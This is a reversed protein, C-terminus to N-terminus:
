VSAEAVPELEHTLEKTQPKSKGDLALLLAPLLLFDIVLAAAIAVATLLGLHENIRFGSLALVGFGAILIASTVWLATGVTRFAYRVADPATAGNARRARQYKSLFHVTADVILGLSTATIVSAALGVEGVFVSWLGFAIAAPLLNPVLSILGLRLDRLAIILAGSILLFAALTGTLMGEINRTFIYAFMVAPGTASIGAAPAHRESLWANAADDIARLESTTINETTAVVRVASKDVNIQNNLDLGYPLSMEFLLLYQAALERNGPLRDHAPDDGHMNRNLRRQLDSLTQVHEVHPKARLWAAFDELMALFGPDNVGGAEAAPVSWELQYVGSLHEAAFEVDQRFTSDHDFYAHFQDNVELRPILATLGAVVVIMGALVLRRRSIVVDALRDMATGRRAVAPRVRLPLVTMVAPLFLISYLWAAAVGAAITNGFDHFPPSDSFNLSLFGIITTLSTLFVPQFNIRLSEVIAAQRSAGRRMEQFMTVLLHISDAIAITLIITPANATVPTLEVGAWGALGMATATSLGIVMLTVLTGALSRLLVATVALLVLYMLPVVSRLDAEAAETFAYGLPASGVIAVHVDPNADRFAAALARSADIVAPIEAAEVRPLNLTVNVAMTAGDPSVLRNVLLPETLAVGRIGAIAAKDLPMDAPILDRVTLDDGDAYSHQFNNLSDVRTAFPMQWGAETLERMATLFDPTFSEGAPPRLVFMVNDDRTYTNQLQVFAQLQPNEPGFYVKYDTSFTLHRAGAAAALALILSVAIALWRHRQVWAAYATVRRDDFLRGAPRGDPVPLSSGMQKGVLLGHRRRIPTM